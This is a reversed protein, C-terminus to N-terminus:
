AVGAERGGGAGKLAGKGAVEEVRRVTEEDYRIKSGFPYPRPGREDEILFYVPHPGSQEDLVRRLRHLVTEPLSARLHLLVASEDPSPDPSQM